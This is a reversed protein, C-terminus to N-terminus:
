TLRDGSLKTMDDMWDKVFDEVLEADDDDYAYDGYEAYNMVKFLCYGFRRVYMEAKEFQHHEVNRAAQIIFFVTAPIVIIIAVVTRFGYGVNWWITKFFGGYRRVGKM